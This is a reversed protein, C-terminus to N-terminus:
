EIPPFAPWEKLVRGDCMLEMPALGRRSEALNIAHNEDVAEIAERHILQGSYSDLFNLQFSRM